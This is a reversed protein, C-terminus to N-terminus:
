LPDESPRRRLRREQILREIGERVLQEIADQTNNGYTGLSVLAQLYEDVVPQMYLRYLKTQTPNKPRGLAM